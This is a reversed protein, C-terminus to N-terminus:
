ENLEKQLEKIKKELFEVILKNDFHTLPKGCKPCRFIL